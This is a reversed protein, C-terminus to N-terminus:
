NNIRVLTDLLQLIRIKSSEVAEWAGSVELHSDSIHISIHFQSMIQQLGEKATKTIESGVGAGGFGGLFVGSPHFLDTSLTLLHLQPAPKAVLKDAHSEGQLQQAEELSLLAVPQMFPHFNTFDGLLSPLGPRVQADGQIAAYLESSFFTAPFSTTPSASINLRIERQTGEVTQEPVFEIFDDLSFLFSQKSDSMQHQPFQPIKQNPFLTDPQGATQGGSHM